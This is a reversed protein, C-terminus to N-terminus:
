RTDALKKEAQANKAKREEEKQKVQQVQQNEQSRVKEVEADIVVQANQKQQLYQNQFERLSLSNASLPAVSASTVDIVLFTFPPVMPNSSRM